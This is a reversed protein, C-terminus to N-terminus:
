QPKEKSRAELVAIRAKLSEIADDHQQWGAILDPVYKSYDVQWIDDPQRGKTIAAPHSRNAEQAFVGRNLPGDPNSKWVFDHIVTQRLVDTARVVGKDIKLRQDSTTNYAVAAGSGGTVTISGIVSGSSNIFMGFRGGDANNTTKAVLLNVTSTDGYALIVPAASEESSTGVTFRGNAHLRMRETTGGSYFRIAGAADEAMISLGAPRHGVLVAADAIYGGSTTYTSSLAYFSGVNATNDNGVRIQALNGTGASTNRVGFVNSGSSGASIAHTGFGNVTITGGLVSGFGDGDIEVKDGSTLGILRYASTGAANTGHLLATNKLVVDGDTTSSTATNPGVLVRGSATALSTTTTVDLTGSLSSNGSVRFKIGGVFANSGVTFAGQTYSDGAFQGAGATVADSGIDIAGFGSTISGSNLAGVTVLNAATTIASQTAGTVTAATGTVSGVIGNTVELDTFWGKTVRSGTSAISGTLTLSNAGLALNGGSVTFGGTASAVTINGTGDFSVGGITRPTALATATSANGTVNGTVNGSVGGNATILGSATLAAATITGTLTPSASMVVNGTGTIANSVLGKSADTFVAQSATLSSMIPQATFTAVGSQVLTGAIATNGTTSAVTFKNTNVFVDGNFYGNLAYISRYQSNNNNMVRLAGDAGNGSLAISSLIGGSPIQLGAGDFMVGNVTFTAVGAVDLAGTLNASAANVAGTLTLNRLSALDKNSDVCLTKSATVTGCTLGDIRGLEASTLSVTDVTLPGTTLLMSSFRGPAQASVVTSACAAVMSALTAVALIRKMAITTKKM